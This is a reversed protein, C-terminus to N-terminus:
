DGLDDLDDDDTRVDPQVLKPDGKASQDVQAQRGLAAM